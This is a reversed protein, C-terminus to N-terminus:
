QLLRLLLAPQQNAQGLLSIGAQMLVNKNTFNTIEASVDVDMIASTAATTNEISVSISNAAFDLRSQAAGIDARRSAVATIASNIAGIALDANAATDVTVANVGLDTATAARLTFSISDNATTGTGVKFSFSKDADAAEVGRVAGSIDLNFAVTSGATATTTTGSLDIRALPGTSGAARVYIGAGAAGVPVATANAGAAGWTVGDSSFELGAVGTIDVTNATGTSTVTFGIKGTVSDLTSLGALQTGSLRAGNDYTATVVSATVAAGTAVINGVTPAQNIDANVDFRSDLTM